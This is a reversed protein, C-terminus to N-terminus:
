NEKLLFSLDCPPNFEVPDCEPKFLKAKRDGVLTVKDDSIILATGERLGLVPRKQYELFENLREDRTEGMHQTSADTELYHPNINFSVLKLADFTPPFVIPMDNTTHISLTAVNTGASSGIYPIGNSLVAGRIVEVLNLDYLTKLLLFTNGGGIFIAEATRIADSLNEKVHIGEVKYGWPTLAKSVTETYKDHAIKAYPVFLITKVSNKKLFSTLEEQAHKLFEYGHVKSSSLLFIKRVM